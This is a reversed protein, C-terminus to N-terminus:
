RAGWALWAPTVGLARSLALVEGTTAGRSLDGLVLRQVRRPPLGTAEALWGAPRAGLALRLRDGVSRADADHDIM